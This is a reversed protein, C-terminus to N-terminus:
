DRSSSTAAPGGPDVTDTGGGGDITKRLSAGVDFGVPLDDYVRDAILGHEARRM